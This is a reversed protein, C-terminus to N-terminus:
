RGARFSVGLLGLVVWALLSVTCLRTDLGRVFRAPHDALTCGPLWASGGGRWRRPWWRAVAQAVAQAVVAGGGRGGGRWRRPWWWAVWRPWWRAVAEAVVAGGGRWWRAGIGGSAGPCVRYLRAMGFRRAHTTLLDAGQRTRCPSMGRVLPRTLGCMYPVNRYQNGQSPGSRAIRAFNTESKNPATALTPPTWRGGRDRRSLRMRATM